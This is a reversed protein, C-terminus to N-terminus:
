SRLLLEVEQHGQLEFGLFVLSHAGGKARPHHCM